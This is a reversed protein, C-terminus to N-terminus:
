VCFVRFWASAVGCTRQMIFGVLHALSEGLNFARQVWFSQRRVSVRSAAYIEGPGPAQIIVVYEGAEAAPVTMTTTSLGDWRGLNEWSEVINVYEVSKGANEGREIMVTEGTSYRVLQIDAESAVGNTPRLIIEIDAGDNRAVLEVKADSEEALMIQRQIEDARSGVMYAVGQVVMQPTYVSREGWARAYRRQRNSFAPQAFIDAWGLYDWYDVHLALAIVYDHTALETLLRDAPPCSSCGQSTFLEVVVPNEARASLPALLLVAGLMSILRSM